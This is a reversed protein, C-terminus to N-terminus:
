YTTDDQNQSGSTNNNGLLRSLAATALEIKGYEKIGEIDRALLAQSFEETIGLRSSLAKALRDRSLTDLYNWDQVMISEAEAPTLGSDVLKNYLSGKLGDKVTDWDGAVIAAIEDNTLRGKTFASIRSLLDNKTVKGFSKFFKVEGSPNAIVTADDGSLLADVNSTVNNRLVATDPTVISLIPEGNETQINVLGTNPDVQTIKGKSIQFQSLKYIMWAAEARTVPKEPQFETKYAPPLVELKNCIEIYRFGWHNAPVDTFSAPWNETFKEEPTALRVIRTLMTALQARNLSEQPKFTGDSFKKMVQREAVSNIYSKAWHGKIDPFPDKSVPAYDYTKAVIKAFEARTIPQDPKFAGDPYGNLVNKNALAVISDEAWNGQIDPFVPQALIKISFLLNFLTVGFIMWFFREKRMFM